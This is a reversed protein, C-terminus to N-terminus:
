PPGPVLVERPPRRYRVELVSGHSHDTKSGGDPSWGESDYLARARSNAEAVWLVQDQLGMSDLDESAGRFLLRGLGLGWADPDLNLAYLEGVGESDGHRAPGSVAFGVVMEDLTGALLGPGESQEIRSAWRRTGDEVSLGDLLDDPM